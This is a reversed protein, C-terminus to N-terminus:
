LWAGTVAMASVWYTFLWYNIWPGVMVASVPWFARLRWVVFGILCLEPVLAAWFVWDPVPADVKRWLLGAIFAAVVAGLYPGVLWFLHTQRYIAILVLAAFLCLLVWGYELFFEQPQIKGASVLAISGTVQQIYLIAAILPMQLAHDPSM